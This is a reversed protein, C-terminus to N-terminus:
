GNSGVGQRAAVRQGQLREENEESAYFLKRSRKSVATEAEGELGWVDLSVGKFSGQEFRSTRHFSKGLEGEGFGSVM